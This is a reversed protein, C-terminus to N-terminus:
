ASAATCPPPAWRGVSRGGGRRGTLPTRHEGTATPVRRAQPRPRVLLSRIATGSVHQLCVVQGGLYVFRAHLTMHHHRARCHWALAQLLMRLMMFEASIQLGPRLHRSSRRHRAKSGCCATASACKASSAPRSAACMAAAAAEGRAPGAGDWFAHRWVITCEHRGCGRGGGESYSSCATSGQLGSYTWTTFMCSRPRAPCQVAAWAAAQRHCLARRHKPARNARAAHRRLRQLLSLHQMFVSAAFCPEPHRVWTSSHCVLNLSFTFASCGHTM